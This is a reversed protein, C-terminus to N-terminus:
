LMFLISSVEPRFKDPDQDKFQGQILGANTRQSGTCLCANNNKEPQSAKTM